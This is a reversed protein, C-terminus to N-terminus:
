SFKDYKIVYLHNAIAVFQELSLDEGRIDRAIGLDDLVKVIDEKNFDLGEYNFIGNVLTKRRQNFSARFAPIFAKM